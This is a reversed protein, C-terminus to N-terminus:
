GKINFMTIIEDFIAKLNRDQYRENQKRFLGDAWSTYYAIKFVGDFSDPESFSQIALTLKAAVEGDALDKAKLLLRYLPESKTKPSQGKM